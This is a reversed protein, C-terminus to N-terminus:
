GQELAELRALVTRWMENTVRKKREPEPTKKQRANDSDVEQTPKASVKGGSIKQLLDDATGELVFEDPRKAQREFNGDQCTGTRLIRGQTNYVIFKKM